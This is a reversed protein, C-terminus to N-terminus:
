RGGIAGHAGLAAIEESRVDISDRLAVSAWWSILSMHLIIVLVILLIIHWLSSIIDIEIVIHRIKLILILIRITAGQVVRVGLTRTEWM